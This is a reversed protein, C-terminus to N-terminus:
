HLAAGEAIDKDHPQKQHFPLFHMVVAIVGGVLLGVLASYVTDVLWALFGGIGPVSHVPDALLHALEYPGHWGLTNFGSVLIHGGVWLMAAIGVTSLVRLVWPMGNVLLRGMRQSGPDNRETMALGIDDMKVILAVVGYVLLTILIAVVVMTVAKMGISIGGSISDNITNLSIVMIEASLIFDTTIASRVMTNEHNPGAEVVPTKEEAEHGGKVAEYFKEAGEFVLYLGGLMLLPTLVVPLFTDLLMLVVILIAKNVLSGKAIRWIMPLERKPSFGQVYQPTVAADDVVVGVAKSGAVSTMKAIVAVDDLLAALGGAM